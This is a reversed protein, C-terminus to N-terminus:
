TSSICYILMMQLQHKWEVEGWHDIESWKASHGVFTAVLSSFTRRKHKKLSWMWFVDSDCGRCVVFWIIQVSLSVVLKHKRPCFTMEQRIVRRRTIFRSETLARWWRPWASYSPFHFGMVRDTVSMMQSPTTYLSCRGNTDGVARDLDHCQEPPPFFCRQSGRKNVRFPELSWRQRQNIAHQMQLFLEAMWRKRGSCEDLISQRHPSRTQVSVDTNMVGEFLASQDLIM